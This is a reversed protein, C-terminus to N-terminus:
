PAGLLRPLRSAGVATLMEAIFREQLAFGAQNDPGVSSV